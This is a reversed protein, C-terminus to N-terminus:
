GIVGDRVDESERMRCTVSFLLGGLVWLCVYM